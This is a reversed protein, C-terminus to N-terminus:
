PKEEAGPKFVANVRGGAGGSVVSRRDNLFITIQEGMVFNEGQSVKPSGTMVVRGEDRYLVAKEGSATRGEQVIRVNGEALIQKIERAEGQYRVTLRDVHISVDDQVAVAHGTFVLIRANDDLELQDATVEVPGRGQVVSENAALVFSPIFLAAFLLFMYKLILNM